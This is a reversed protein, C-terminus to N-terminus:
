AIKQRRRWWGLLGGCAAILGPLGAGVVPGPVALLGRIEGAPFMMTHINLYTEGALLAAVFVPEATAATTGLFSNGANGPPMNVLNYTSNATLDFIRDYTGSTVGLPFGPFTPITTGVPENANQFPAPLCCHIHSATTGSMLGSFTVQVRMMDGPELTVVATGTGPSNDNPNMELPASLVATLVTDAYSAPMPLILVSALALLCPRISIDPLSLKMNAERASSNSVPHPKVGGGRTIADGGSRVHACCNWNAGKLPHTSRADYGEETVQSTLRRAFETLGDRREGQYDTLRSEAATAMLM